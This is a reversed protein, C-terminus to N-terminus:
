ITYGVRIRDGTDLVTELAYGNWSLINGTVTFDTGYVQSTGGTVDVTVEGADVPTTALTVQKNTAQTGNLTFYEVFWNAEISDVTEATTSAPGEPGQPGAPGPPGPPGQPGAIGGNEVDLDDLFRQIRKFNEQIYRDRVEKVLLKLM